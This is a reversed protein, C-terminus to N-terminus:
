IRLKSGEIMSRQVNSVVKMRHYYYWFNFSPIIILTFSAQEKKKFLVKMNLVVYNMLYGFPWDSHFVSFYALFCSLTKNLSKETKLALTSFDM